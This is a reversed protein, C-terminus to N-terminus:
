QSIQPGIQPMSSKIKPAEPMVEGLPITPSWSQWKPDPKENLFFISGNTVAPGYKEPTAFSIGGSVLTSASEASIQLGTFLGVHANIGGANWFQSNARVLPAYQQRILAEVVVFEANQDLHVGTVEGVQVGRYFIGSQAELSDMDNALLTIQVGPPVVVPAEAVGMFVNTEPGTGPQVAVYSGSVITQLGSVAGVSLRPRVIWFVSGNRALDAASHDLKIQVAVTQGKEALKLSRVQGVQIGRYKIVSNEEQLGQADQFYVTITPGAFVFDKLIFWACLGAAAIPLAWFFWSLADKQIKAKPLHHIAENMVRKKLVATAESM